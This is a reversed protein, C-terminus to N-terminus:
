QKPPREGFLARGIRVFTAGEEIAVEFDDTMGMSLHHWTAQPFRQALVDRLRRLRQFIPRVAEPDSTWPAVTMLGQIDLHPLAILKEVDALFAELGPQHELGGPLDFGEKSAEGSVNVQLLVPFRPGTEARVAQVHRQLTEALRVSDLSHLMAFHEAATRSKNRQLHGILHWHVGQQAQSLSMIKPLAEQVRNEGIHNVGAAVAQAIVEVPQTKSVAVLTVEAPNRGARQAAAAIREYINGLHDAINNM